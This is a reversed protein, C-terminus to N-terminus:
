DAEPKPMLKESIRFCQLVLKGQAELIGEAQVSGSIPSLCNVAEQPMNPQSFSNSFVKKYEALIQWGTAEM